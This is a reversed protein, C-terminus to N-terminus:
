ELTSKCLIELIEDGFIKICKNAIEFSKFYPLMSLSHSGSHYTVFIRDQAANCFIQYKRSDTEWDPKWDGNADKAWENIRFILQQRKMFDEALKKTKFILGSRYQDQDEKSDASYEVTKVGSTSVRFMQLDEIPCEVEYNPQNIRDIVRTLRRFAEIVEDNSTDVYNNLIRIDIEERRKSM